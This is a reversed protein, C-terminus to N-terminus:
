RAVVITHDDRERSFETAIREAIKQPHQSLFEPPYLNLDFKGSIGDSYIIITDGATYPFGEERVKRLNYGIIGNTSIPRIRTRSRVRVEINGVGAYRLTSRNLDILAIGIAAGRTGKMEEHCGKIIETLSRWYNKQICELATEAAVGADAGHGLGDIVSILIKDEFEKIFYADGCVKEGKLARNIVGFQM